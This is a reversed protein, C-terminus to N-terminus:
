PYLRKRRFFGLLFLLAIVGWFLLAPFHTVFSGFGLKIGIWGVMLYSSRELHPFRDILRSFLDAAYRMGILGIMGGIYVIWLKSPSNDIFALGAIISDLAFILDLMEILFVTRWFSHTQSVQVSKGRKMFYRVSLYLLYAGGVLEVWAYKLLHAIFLLALARLFFSSILGIFLAKRRLPSPLASSLVGLVVANDASLLIELFALTFIRPIDSYAFSQDM